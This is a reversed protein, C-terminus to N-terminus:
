RNCKKGKRGRKAGEDEQVRQRIARRRKSKLAVMQARKQAMAIKSLGTQRLDNILNGLYTSSETAKNQFFCLQETIANSAIEQQKWQFMASILKVRETITGTAKRVRELLIKTEGTVAEYRSSFGYTVTRWNGATQLDSRLQQIAALLASQATDLNEQIQSAGKKWGAVKLWPTGFDVEHVEVIGVKALTITVNLLGYADERDIKVAHFGDFLESLSFDDLLETGRAVSVKFSPLRRKAKLKAPTKIIMHCDGIIQVQFKDSKNVLLENGPQTLLAALDSNPVTALSNGVDITPIPTHSSTLESQVHVITLPASILAASPTVLDGEASIFSSVTLIGARGVGYVCVSGLVLVVLVLVQTLVSKYGYAPAQTMWISKGLNKEVDGADSSLMKNERTSGSQAPLTPVSLQATDILCALGKNLQKPDMSDFTNIDVPLRRLIHSGFIGPQRSEICIHLSQHNLLLTNATSTLYTEDSIMMFPIHHRLMFLQACHMTDRVTRSDDNALFFIAVDPSAWPMVSSIEYGIGNQRSHYRTGYKLCLEIENPDVEVNYAASKLEDVVILTNNVAMPEGHTPTGDDGFASPAIHYLSSEGRRADFNAEAGAILADSIKALIDQKSNSNGIYLLRFPRQLDLRTRSMTMRLTVCLQAAGTHPIDMDAEDLIDITHKLDVQGKEPWSGPEEFAIFESHSNSLTTGVETLNQSSAGSQQQGFSRSSRQAYEDNSSPQPEDGAESDSHDGLSHVDEVGNQSVLSGVDTTESRLDDERSYDSNSLTAWSESLPADTELNTDAAPSTMTSVHSHTLLSDLSAELLLQPFELQSSDPQTSDQLRPQPLPAGQPTDQHEDTM